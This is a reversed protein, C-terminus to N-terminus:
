AADDRQDERHKKPDKRQLLLERNERALERARELSITHLPGLSINRDKATDRDTWRFIWYQGSDDTYLWLNGGDGIWRKGSKIFQAIKAASLKGIPNAM